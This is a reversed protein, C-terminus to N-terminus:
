PYLFALDSIRQLRFGLGMYINPIQIYLSVKKYFYHNILPFCPCTVWLVLMPASLYGLHGLKKQGFKDAWAWFTQFKWFFSERATRLVHLRVNLHTLFTCSKTRFQIEHFHFSFKLIYNNRQRESSAALNCKQHSVMQLTLSQRQISASMQTHVKIVGLNQPSPM